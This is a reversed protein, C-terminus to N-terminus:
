SPLADDHEISSWAGSKHKGWAGQGLFKHGDEPADCSMNIPDGYKAIVQDGDMAEHLSVVHQKTEPLVHKLIANCMSKLTRYPVDASRYSAQFM